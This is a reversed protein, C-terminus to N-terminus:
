RLTSTVLSKMGRRLRESLAQHTIDTKAALEELTCDRPIEFFGQQSASVLTETQTPTLGYRETVTSNHTRSLRIPEFGIAHNECYSTYRQLSEEDPLQLRFRWGDHRRAGDLFVAGNNSWCPYTSLERGRETLTIRYRRHEDGDSFRGWSAVSHDEDLGSEFSEFKGNGANLIVDLNGCEKSNQQQISVDLDPANQLATQLVPTEINFEVIMNVSQYGLQHLCVTQGAM